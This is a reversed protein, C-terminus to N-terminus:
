SPPVTTYIIGNTRKPLENLEGQSKDAKLIISTHGKLFCNLSDLIESMWLLKQLERLGGESKLYTHLASAITIIGRRRALISKIVQLM